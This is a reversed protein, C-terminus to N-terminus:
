PKRVDPTKTAAQGTKLGGMGPDPPPTKDEDDDFEVTLRDVRFRGNPEFTSGWMTRPREKRVMAVITSDRIVIRLEDDRLSVSDSMPTRCRLSSFDKGDSCRRLTSGRVIDRINDTRMVTDSALVISLGDVTKLDLRWSYFGSQALRTQRIRLKPSSMTIEIRDKQVVVLSSDQAALGPPSALAAIASLCPVCRVGFRRLTAPPTIPTRLAEFRNKM